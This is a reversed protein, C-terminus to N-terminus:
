RYPLGKAMPNPQQLNEWYRRRQMTWRQYVIINIQSCMELQKDRTVIHHIKRQFKIQSFASVFCVPISTTATGTKVIPMRIPLIPLCVLICIKYLIQKEPSKRIQSTQTMPLYQM